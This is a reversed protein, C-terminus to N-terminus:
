IFAWFMTTRPCHSQLAWLLCRGAALAGQLVGWLLKAALYGKAFPFLQPTLIEALLCGGLLYARRRARGLGCGCDRPMDTFPAIAGGIHQECQWRQGVLWFPHLDSSFMYYLDRRHKDEHDRFSSLRAGDPIAIHWPKYRIEQFKVYNEYNASLSVLLGYYRRDFRSRRERRGSRRM